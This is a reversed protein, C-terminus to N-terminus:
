SEFSDEYWEKITNITTNNTSFLKNRGNPFKVFFEEDCPSYSIEWDSPIEINDSNITEQIFKDDHRLEIDSIILDSNSYKTLADDLYQTIEFPISLYGSGRIDNNKILDGNKGIIFTKIDRYESFSVLDGYNYDLINLESINKINEAKKINECEYVYKALINSDEM